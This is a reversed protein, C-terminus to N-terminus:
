GTLYSLLLIIVGSAQKSKTQFNVSKYRVRSFFIAFSDINYM